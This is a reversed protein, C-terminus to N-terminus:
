CHYGQVRCGSSRKGADGAREGAPGILRATVVVILETFRSRVTREGFLRGM